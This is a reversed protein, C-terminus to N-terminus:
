AGLELAIIVAFFFINLFYMQLGNTKLPKTGFISINSKWLQQNVLIKINKYIDKKFKKSIYYSEL